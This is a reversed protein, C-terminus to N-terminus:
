ASSQSMREVRSSEVRSSGVRGSGVGGWGVGGVEQRDRGRGRGPRSAQRGGPLKQASGDAGGVACVGGRPQGAAQHQARAFDGARRSHSRADCRDGRRASAQALQHALEQGRESLRRSWRRDLGQDHRQITQTSLEESSGASLRRGPVPEVLQGRLPSAAAASPSSLPFFFFFVVVVVLPLFIRGVWAGMGGGGESVARAGKRKRGLNSKQAQTSSKFAVTPMEERLYKLWKEASERPILDIKNLVLIVRKEGSGRKLVFREVDM